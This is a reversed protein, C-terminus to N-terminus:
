GGAVVTESKAVAGNGNSGSPPPVLGARVCFDMYRELLKADMPPCSLGSGALAALAARADFHLRPVRLRWGEPAEGILPSLGFLASEATLASKQFLEERWQASPLKRLPYGHGRLWEVVEDWTMQQANVLHYVHGVADPSLSLHAIAGSVYDVPTMDVTVDMDSAAGIEICGRIIRSIFDEMHGVGSRSHGTIVGPRYVCVPVGRERAQLVLQEAVWKSQPYGVYLAECQRPVDAERAAQLELHDALSFVALTSVHHLVKWRGRAALRLVDHTGHVNAPKLASYSGIFNVDAGPHYIADIREALDTFEQEALGLRPRALDGVVAVLRRSCEPRWLEYAALNARIRELGEAAGAARVLCHITAPTRRLLEDILFAGLFGTGGTLFISEPAGVVAPATDHRRIEEDLVVEARLDLGAKGDTRDGASKLMEMAATYATAAPKPEAHGNASPTPAQAAPTAPAAAAAAGKFLQEYLLESLRSLSPSHMLEAIPVNVQLESEMWNRLEVAMLSDLGLNLLPKDMDLKAASSGLVRAVKDRLMAQIMPRRQEPAAALVAKRTVAGGRAASEAEGEVQKYVDGFRPSVKAGRGFWRRWDIAIVGAQVSQRRMLRELGDFCQRLTLGHVGRSELMSMVKEHKAVYGAEGVSGWNVTIAPLGLARRHFALADLMSNAASYNGQGPTGSISTMSSFLLFLDLPRGLTQTHLNWAGNIKPALVKRLQEATMNILVTDELVMAAHLVGRLTPMHADIHAIAAAVDQEKSVDGQFIVVEAGAQRMAEVGARADESTIGRRGMLVLHRAGREVMWRAVAQSFGGLGGAFLYTGDGRFTVPEDAGPLVTAPQQRMSLVVKGIHKGHQMYRFANVVNDISFVRHPLPALKGEAADRMVQRFLASMLQPKQRIGRDLDVAFFSLNKRFPKLGLRLNAYIDRKGIEVFRGYDGLTALGKAIAEGALSNLVVDVGRGGTHDMVQEAFALTRSDMVHEVDFNRLMERKDPNGATAFVEAGARRCLQLAALGVGGTASHILAKEGASLHGLYELSYAATLFAIPFTTAEEFTMRPPMPATLLAATVAHSSFAFPAIAVVPDGIQFEEVGEGVASIRGACEAGMSVPGDPLGPYIGLAKMVDSFNLAAACVEIEVQGPGPPQRKIARFTLGDITGQRSPTLRYPSKQRGVRPGQRVDNCRVYRLVYREGGRVAVEDEEDGAALEDLLWRAGEQLSAAPDLDVMKCRLSPGENWLVRGLGTLTTQAVAIQEPDPGVSHAGRSVLVVPAGRDGAVDNWAQVLTLVSLLGVDQFRALETTTMGETAPADLTWLHVIGKCAPRGAALVESLVQKLDERRSPDIEWGDDRRALGSGAFVLTAEQGRERLRRAMERGAGAKDAFIIWGGPEAAPAPAPATAAEVKPGRSVIIAGSEVDRSRAAYVDQTQTFGLQTLLHEWADFTLLPYNPRLDTDSYLWWGDTLGFVLDIWRPPRVMELFFLLGESAMLTRVNSLTQRLDSTAHLVHSAIVIDFSHEAFGQPIPDHGVDLKQYKVFPYAAFKEQAKVFFHNSLDTFVYETRGAPLRPLVYSTLGGTGAGVELIRIGRGRPVQEIVKCIAQRAVANSFRAFPSDQYMHEATSLSGEPFILHVPNVDGKLVGALSQACRGLLSLEPYLAPNERLLGKWTAVPDTCGPAGRVEWEPGSRAVVGDQELMGLYRDLLREFKGLIGLRAVSAATTFRDGVQPAGGLQCLAQWIFGATVQDLVENVHIYREELMLERQLVDSDARAAATAPGLEACGTFSRAAKEQGPRPQVRWEYEYLMGEVDDGAVQGARGAAQGRFGRVQVVPQGSEDYVDINAVFGQQTLETLRVHSWFRTATPRGFFRVSEIEVPLYITRAAETDGMPDISGGLTQLCVDLIAPHFFYEGTKGQLEDPVRVLGLAEGDRGGWLHELGRFTPGYDLGIAGLGQYYVEPTFQLPRRAKVVEPDFRQAPTEAPRGRMVGTFHTTWPQEGDKTESSVRFTGDDRNVIVQVMTAKSESLVLARPLKVDEIVTTGPGYLERAAAFAMELYATTPLFIRSYVQHDELYPLLKLDFRNEWTPEAMTLAKGLLPHPPPALRAVANEESEHWFREHQWPYSPLRVFRGDDPFVANLDFPYGLTYLQGLARLMTVREDEKRRLSAMLAPKKDHRAYCEAVGSGLVPHPSLELVADCGAEVLREVGDAFLVTQRVNRWWYDPGLEPGEVRQGTVTSFLPVTAPQPHIGELSALLEDRIPDMQASHFAYQVQLARCFVQRGKLEQEVQALLEPEGSLTVSSPSNVAALALRDGYPAILSLAEDRTISAALMRGRSPALEMCRGRQYIVRLADELSFVGAVHAAAVEGVSHGVVAEPRVGWSRWLAALAVQIAFIAPQSIATVHMRSSGEDATLEELLSWEGLQRVQSDCRHIVDRFVPEEALLQRGMAWWQPGQGAFVFALRPRQDAVARGSTSGALPEGAAFAALQEALEDRTRAVMALRYDHHTRRLGTTYALDSLRVGAGADALFDRVSGALAKLAEPSRASLPVPLARSLDCHGNGNLDKSTDARPPEQLVVHANSGGFGFSNVGALAAAGGTAPWPECTRPVRLKLTELPIDPNPQEFHLNPPIQRNKLALAAKMLGAIGAAAELHGINTKVSGVACPRDVPRGVSLVEGLARAEIPDGVLTGTGHAEVFQIDAPAVGASRCAERLLAAQSEQSPVTLGPTRGDQNSASGRIVAYIPDRDALARSLPKLVVMGAGEGRVFGNARADFAKCRGDPSLMALRSFGLYPGVSLLVQVGGALALPCGEEWISHCGLHVAVLASSCASDLAMSPGKFNCFYSIRNAVISLAGGINTYVDVDTVDRYAAQLMAYDWSAIGVYVSTRSGSLRELTQGADELAEWAVELTLRQQPDMRAAERPSIGFFHADFLDVGKIFGGRGANTKGPKGPEPDYYKRTDWRDPPIDSIVDLGDRLLRWFSDPDNAGGPYRCAMGIIAIPERRPLGNGAPLGHHSDSSGNRQSFM